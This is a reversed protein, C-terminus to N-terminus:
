AAGGISGQLLKAFNVADFGRRQNPSDLTVNSLWGGIIEIYKQIFGFTRAM